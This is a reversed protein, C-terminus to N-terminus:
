LRRAFTATLTGTTAFGTTHNQCAGNFVYVEVPKESVLQVIDASDCFHEFLDEGSGDAEQRVQVFVPMGSADSAALHVWEDGPRPTFVIPPLVDEASVKWHWTDVGHSYVYQKTQVRSPTESSRVRASVPASTSILAAVVAGAALIRKTVVLDEGPAGPRRRGLRLFLHEGATELPKRAM